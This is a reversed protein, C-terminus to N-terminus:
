LLMMGVQEETSRKPCYGKGTGGDMTALTIVIDAAIDADLTACVDVSGASEDVLVM